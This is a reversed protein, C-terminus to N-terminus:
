SNNSRLDRRGILRLGDGPKHLTELLRPVDALLQAPALEVRGSPTRLVEPVRPQLPGLDIGHPHEELMRLNLGDLYTGLGDGYPGARLMMDLLRDELRLPQAAALLEEPQRGAVRSQPDAVLRRALEAAALDDLAQATM